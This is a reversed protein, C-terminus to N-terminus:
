ELAAANEAAELEAVEAEEDAYEERAAVVDAGIAADYRGTRHKDTMTM